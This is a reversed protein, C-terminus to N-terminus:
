AASVCNIGAQDLAVLAAKVRVPEGRTGLAKFIAHAQNLLERATVFDEATRRLAAKTVMAKALDNRAGVQDLVQLAAEVYAAATGPAETCLCDAMLWLAVGELHLYGTQRSTNLINEILPRASTRDGRCLHAEALWLAFRLHTYSLHFREFWAIAKTLDEIGTEARGTKFNAFGLAAQAMAADYPIPALALAENCCELGHEFDGQQIYATGLRLWGVAKLRLDKLAIGYDLARRCYGLSAEWEGLANAALSLIWLTRGAWWFNGRAEFSSLATEGAEVAEHLRGAVVFAQALCAEASAKIEDLGAVIALKAAERCHEIALDPRQGTLSHLFGTWYHWTAGRRPDDSPDVLGRIRELNQIHETHRGLAFKVEAQKLVADVRRLQNTRTDPLM